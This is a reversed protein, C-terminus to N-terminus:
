HCESQCNLLHRDRAICPVQCPCRVPVTAASRVGTTPFVEADGLQETILAVTLAADSLFFRGAFSQLDDDTDSSPHPAPLLQLSAAM